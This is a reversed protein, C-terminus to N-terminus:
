VYKHEELFEWIDDIAIEKSAYNTYNGYYEHNTWEKRQVKNLLIKYQLFGITPAVRALIDDLKTLEPEPEGSVTYSEPPSNDWCNGGWAGGIRWEVELKLTPGYYGSNNHQNKKKPPHYEGGTIEDVIKQFEDRTM